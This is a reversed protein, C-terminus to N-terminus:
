ERRRRLFTPVDWMKETREATVPAAPVPAGANVVSRGGAAAIAEEAYGGLEEGDTTEATAREEVRQREQAKRGEPRLSRIMPRGRLPDGDTSDLEHRLKHDFGTAIVTVRVEEKLSTDLVTGFIVHVDEHAEDHILSAAENVDFLTLDEGGTINLLVATAGKIEIDELLPSSIAMKAANIARNDGTAVGTGMLAMGGESMITQVDRFDLNILGPTHILDTIGRVADVLTSDARRLAERMTLNKAGLDLLRQNPITIVTDVVRRLEALGQDAQDRRRKGEFLFPRTVVAVTLAGIEKAVRAIVPAAGTGTG